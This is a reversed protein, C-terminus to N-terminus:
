LINNENIQGLFWLHALLELGNGPYNTVSAVTIHYNIKRLNINYRRRAKRLQQLQALQQRVAFVLKNKAINGSRRLANKRYRTEVSNELKNIVLENSQRTKLNDM